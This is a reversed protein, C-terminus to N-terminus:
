KIEIEPFKRIIHYYSSGIFIIKSIGGGVEEERKRLHGNEGKAVNASLIKFM